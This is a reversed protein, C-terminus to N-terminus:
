IGFKAPGLRVRDEWMQKQMEPSFYAKKDQKRLKQYYAYDREGSNGATAMAETNVGGLPAKLAGFLALLATPSEAGLQALRAVSLGTEKSKAALKEKAAEGYLKTLETEVLKLNDAASRDKERATLKAELLRELDQESVSSTTHEPDAASTKNQSQASASAASAAEARLQALLEDTKDGKAAKESLAAVQAKLEDIYRDAEAKGRALDELTKFKKGEGVLDELPTNSTTQTTTDFLAM